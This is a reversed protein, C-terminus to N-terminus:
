PMLVVSHLRLWLRCDLAMRVAVCICWGRPLHCCCIAAAPACRRLLVDLAGYEAVEMVLCERGSMQCSGYFQVLNPHPREFAELIAAEHALADPEMILVAIPVSNWTAHHVQKYTGRALPSGLHIVEGGAHMSSAGFDSDLAADASASRQLPPAAAPASAAATTAVPAIGFACSLEAPPLASAPSSGINGSSGNAAGAHASSGAAGDASLSAQRLARSFSEAVARPLPVKRPPRAPEALPRGRKSFRLRQLSAPARLPSGTQGTLGDTTDPTLDASLSTLGSM